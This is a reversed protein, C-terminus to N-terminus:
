IRGDEQDFYRGVEVAYALGDSGRLLRRHPTNFCPHIISFQLFGGPRLIHFIEEFALEQEPLDMLSM